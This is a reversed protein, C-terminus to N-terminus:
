SAQESRQCMRQLFICCHAMGSAPDYAYGVPVAADQGQPGQSAAQKAKEALEGKEVAGAYDQLHQLRSCLNCVDMYSALLCFHAQQHVCGYHACVDDLAHYRRGGWAAKVSRHSAYLAHLTLVWSCSTLLCCAFCLSCSVIGRETLFRRLEKIPWSQYDVEDGEGIDAKGNSLQAVAGNQAPQAQEAAIGNELRQSQQQQAIATAPEGQQQQQQQQWQNDTPSSSHLRPTSGNSDGMVEPFSFSVRPTSLASPRAHPPSSTSAAQPEDNEMNEAFMDDDDGFIDGSPAFLAAAREFEEQSLLPGTSTYVCDM